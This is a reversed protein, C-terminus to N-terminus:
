NTNPSGQIQDVVRELAQVFNLTMETYELVLAPFRWINQVGTDPQIIGSTCRYSWGHKRVNNIIYFIVSNIGGHKGLRLGM